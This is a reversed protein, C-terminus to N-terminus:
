PELLGCHDAKKGHCCRCTKECCNKDDEPDNEDDQALPDWAAVAAKTVADVGGDKKNDKKETGGEKKLKWKKCKCCVICIVKMASLKCCTLKRLIDKVDGNQTVVHDEPLFASVFEMFSIFGCLIALLLGIFLLSNSDLENPQQFM